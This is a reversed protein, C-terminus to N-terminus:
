HCLFLSRDAHRIVTFATAGFLRRILFNRGSTGMVILDAEWDAAYALLKEQAAEPVQETEPEFGHARCYDGADQLLEQGEDKHAFTVIRLSADPWLRLQLFRRMAEASEMSGSYAVLVKRIPRFEECVAIIPRVGGEVLRVLEEPTEEEAGQEFLARLGFVILDHYRAQDVLYEFPEEEVQRMRYTVGADTCASEFQAVTERVVRRATEVRHEILQRAASEGGIPIPGVSELRKLDTASVATLEAEHCRALEIARQTAAASFTKDGIGVLIRKIM